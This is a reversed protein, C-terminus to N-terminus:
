AAGSLEPRLAPQQAAIAFALDDYRDALELHARRAVPHAATMAAQREELARRRFYVLDGEM